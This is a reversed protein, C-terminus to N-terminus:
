RKSICINETRILAPTTDMAGKPLREGLYHEVLNDFGVDTGSLM